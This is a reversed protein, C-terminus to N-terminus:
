ADRGGSLDIPGEPKRRQEELMRTVIKSSENGRATGELIVAAPEMALFCEIKMRSGTQSNPNDAITFEHIPIHDVLVSRLAIRLEPEAAQIVRDIM